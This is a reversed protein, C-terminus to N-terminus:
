VEILFDDYRNEGPYGIPNCVVKTCGVTKHIFDHTHGCIWYDIGENALLDDCSSSFYYNLSDTKPNQKWREAVCQYSPMFHTCVVIKRGEQRYREIESAIFKKDKIFRDLAGQPEFRNDGDRIVWFDNIHQKAAAMSCLDMQKFDTWLTAGIFVVNYHKWVGRDLVHVNKPLRKKDARWSIDRGYWEHNGYLAVVHKFKTSIECLQDEFAKSHIDGCIVAVPAKPEVIDWIRSVDHYREMHLDSFVQLLM